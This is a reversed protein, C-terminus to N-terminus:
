TAEKKPLKDLKRFEINSFEIKNTRFFFDPNVNLAISLRKIKEADPIVEGKEYKHLAQRSVQNDLADALDQLSYGNMLRASKFREAFIAKIEM